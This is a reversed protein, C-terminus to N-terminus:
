FLEGGWAFRGRQILYVTPQLEPFPGSTHLIAFTVELRGGPKITPSTTRARALASKGCGLNGRLQLCEELKGQSARADSSTHEVTMAPATVSRVKRHSLPLTRCSSLCEENKDIRPLPQAPRLHDNAHFSLCSPCFTQYCLNCREAHRPCLSTGCDTCRSVASHGCIMGLDDHAGRVELVGCQQTDRM